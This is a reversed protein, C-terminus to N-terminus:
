GSKWPKPDFFKSNLQLGKLKAKKVREKFVESVYIPKHPHDPITFIVNDGVKEEIFYFELATNFRANGWGNGKLVSREYDLCDVVNTPYFVYYCGEYGKATVPYLEGYKEWLDSMADVARQSLVHAPTASIFDALGNKKWRSNLLMNDGEFIALELPKWKEKSTLGEPYTPDPDFQYLASSGDAEDLSAYKDEM